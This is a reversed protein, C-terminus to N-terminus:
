FSVLKLQIYGVTDLNQGYLGMDAQGIDQILTYRAVEALFRNKEALFFFLIENEATSPRKISSM